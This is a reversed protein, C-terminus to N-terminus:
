SPLSDLVSRLRNVPCKGSCTTFIQLTSPQPSAALPASAGAPEAPQGPVAGSAPVLTAAPAITATATPLPTPTSTLTPPVPTYTPGSVKSTAREAFQTQQYNSNPCPIEEGSDNYCRKQPPVPAAAAATLLGVTVALTVLLLLFARSNRM